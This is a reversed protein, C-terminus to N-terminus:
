KPQFASLFGVFIFLNIKNILLISSSFFFVFLCVIDSSAYAYAEGRALTRDLWLSMIITVLSPAFSM